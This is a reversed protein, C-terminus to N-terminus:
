RNYCTPMYVIVLLRELYFCLQINGHVNSMNRANISLTTASEEPDM